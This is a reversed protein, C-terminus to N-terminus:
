NLYNEYVGQTYNQTQALISKKESRYQAEYNGTNPASNRETQIETATDSKKFFKIEFNCM